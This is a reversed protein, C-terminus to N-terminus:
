KLTKRWFLVEKWLTTVSYNNSSIVWQFLSQPQLLNLAPSSPLSLSHPPQITDDVWHVHTQAFKSVGISQGGSAFLQNVLFSGSVPFSQFHSSFPIVSSSTTPHCWWSLPCSNSYAWPTLSPCSAQNSGLSLGHPWLSDSMVSCSFQVSSFPPSAQHAATWTTEFFRVHSLSQVVNLVISISQEYLICM